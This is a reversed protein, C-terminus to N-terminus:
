KRVWVRVGGIWIVNDAGIAAAIWEQLCTLAADTESAPFEALKRWLDFLPSPLAAPSSPM